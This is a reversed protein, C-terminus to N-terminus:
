VTGNQVSSITDCCYVTYSVIIKCEERLLVAVLVSSRRLRSIPRGRPYNTCENDKETVQEWEKRV